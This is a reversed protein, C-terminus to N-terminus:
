QDIIVKEASKVTLLQRKVMIPDEGRLIARIMSQFQVCCVIGEHLDSVQAIAFEYAAEKVENM